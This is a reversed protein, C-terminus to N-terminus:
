LCCDGDNNFGQGLVLAGEGDADHQGLGGGMEESSLAGLLGGDGREQVKGVDISNVLVM